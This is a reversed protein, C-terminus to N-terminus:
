GANEVLQRRNAHARTLSSPLTMLLKQIMMSIYQYHCHNDLVRYVSVYCKWNYPGM